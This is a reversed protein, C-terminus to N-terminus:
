FPVIYELHQERLLHIDILYKRSYQNLFKETVLHYYKDKGSLKDFEREIDINLREVVNFLDKRVNEIM